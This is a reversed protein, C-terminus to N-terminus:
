VVYRVKGRERGGERGGEGLRFAAEEAGDQVPKGEGLHHHGVTVGGVGVVLLIGKVAALVTHLPGGERGGEVQVIQSGTSRFSRM